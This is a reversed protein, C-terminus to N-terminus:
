LPPSATGDGDVHPVRRPAVSRGPTSASAAAHNDERPFVPTLPPSTATLSLGTNEGVLCLPAFPPRWASFSRPPLPLPHYLSCSLHFFSYPFGAQRFSHFSIGFIILGETNKGTM